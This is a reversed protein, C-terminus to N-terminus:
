KNCRASSNTHKLYWMRFKDYETVTVEKMVSM